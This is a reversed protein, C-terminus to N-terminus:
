GRRAGKFTFTLVIGGVCIAVFSFLSVDSPRSSLWAVVAAIFAFFVVASLLPRTM